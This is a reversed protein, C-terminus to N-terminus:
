LRRTLRHLLSLSLLVGEKLKMTRCVASVDGLKKTNEQSVTSHRKEKHSPRVQSNGPQGPSRESFRCFGFFHSVIFLPCRKIAQQKKNVMAGGTRRTVRPFEWEFSRSVTEGNKSFSSLSSSTTSCDCTEFLGHRHRRPNRNHDRSPVISHM